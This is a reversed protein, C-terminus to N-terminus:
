KVPLIRRHRHSRLHARELGSEHGRPLRATISHKRLVELFTRQLEEVAQVNGRSNSKEIDRTARALQRKRRRPLPNLDRTEVEGGIQHLSSGLCYVLSQPNLDVLAIGLIQRLKRIEQPPTWQRPPPLTPARAARRRPTSQVSSVVHSTSRRLVLDAPEISRSRGDQTRLRGFMRVRKEIHRRRAQSPLARRAFEDSACPRPCAATAPARPQTRHWAVTTRTFSVIATRAQQLRKRFLAPTIELADAAEPGPLEFIEGLVYALRHPRDLCQLMGLTCGIKVEETLLSREADTPGDSSLGEALDEAFREFNLHMREVPSKKVDLIYNVAVKYVWTKLKSRFDFQALRTVVRVLIEQTADEADERNWLMRLALGYVDGQLDRVLRDLADRDGDIARRAVDELAMAQMM